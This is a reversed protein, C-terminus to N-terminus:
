GLIAPGSLHPHGPPLQSGLNVFHLNYAELKHRNADSMPGRHKGALIYHGNVNATASGASGGVYSRNSDVADFASAGLAPVGGTGPTEDLILVGDLWLRTRPSGDGGVIMEACVLHATGTTATVNSLRVVTAGSDPVRYTIGWKKNLATNGLLIGFRRSAVNTEEHIVFKYSTDEPLAELKILAWLFVSQAGNSVSKDSCVLCQNGTGDLRITKRGAYTGLKIGSDAVAPTLTNTVVGGFSPLTVFADGVGGTLDDPRWGGRYGATVDPTWLTPPPPDEIEMWFDPLTSVSINFITAELSM